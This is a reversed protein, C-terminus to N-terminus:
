KESPGTVVEYAVIGKKPKVPTKSEFYSNSCGYMLETYSIVVMQAVGLEGGSSDPDFDELDEEKLDEECDSPIRASM